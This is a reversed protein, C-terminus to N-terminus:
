NWFVFSYYIIQKIETCINYYSRIDADFYNWVEFAFSCAYNQLLLYTVYSLVYTIQLKKERYGMKESGVESSIKKYM